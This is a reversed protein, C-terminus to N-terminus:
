GAFDENDSPGHPLMLLLITTHAGHLSQSTALLCDVVASDTAAVTLSSRAIALHLGDKHVQREYRDHAATATCHLNM